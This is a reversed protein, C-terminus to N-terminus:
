EFGNVKGYFSSSAFAQVSTSRERLSTKRLLPTDLVEFKIVGLKFATIILIPNQPTRIEM